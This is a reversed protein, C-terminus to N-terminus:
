HCPLCCWPRPSILHWVLRFCPITLPQKLITNKGTAAARIQFM